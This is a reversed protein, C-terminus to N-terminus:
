METPMCIAPSKKKYNAFTLTPFFYCSLASVRRLTRTLTSSARLLASLLSLGRAWDLFRRPGVGQGKGGKEEPDQELPPRSGRGGELVSPVSPLISPRRQQCKECANLSTRTSGDCSCEQGHHGLPSTRSWVAVVSIESEAKPSCNNAPLRFLDNIPSPLYCSPSSFVARDKEVVFKQKGPRLVGPWWGPTLAFRHRLSCPVLGSAGLGACARGQTKKSWPSSGPM